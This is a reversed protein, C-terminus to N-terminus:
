GRLGRAWPAIVYAGLLYGIWLRRMGPNERSGGAFGKEWHRPSVRTGPKNRAFAQWGQCRSEV